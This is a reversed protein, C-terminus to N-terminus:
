AKTKEPKPEVLKKDLGPPVAPAQPPKAKAKSNVAPAARATTKPKRPKPEHVPRSRTPTARQPKAKVPKTAPRPRVPRAAPKEAKRIAKTV